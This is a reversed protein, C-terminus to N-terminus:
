SVEDPLKNCTLPSACPGHDADHEEQLRRKYAEWRNGLIKKMVADEADEPPMM